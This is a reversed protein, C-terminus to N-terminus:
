RGVLANAWAINAQDVAIDATVRDVPKWMQVGLDMSVVDKLQIKQKTLTEM